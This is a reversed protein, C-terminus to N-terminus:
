GLELRMQRGPPLVLPSLLHGLVHRAPLFPARRLDKCWPALQYQPLPYPWHKSIPRLPCFSSAQSPKM